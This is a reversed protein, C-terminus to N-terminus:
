FVVVIEHSFVTTIGLLNTRIMKTSDRKLKIALLNCSIDFM